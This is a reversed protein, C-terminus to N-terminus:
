TRRGAQSPIYFEIGLRKRVLGEVWAHHIKRISVTFETEMRKSFLGLQKEFIIRQNTLILVGGGGIGHYTAEEVAHSQLLMDEGARLIPM